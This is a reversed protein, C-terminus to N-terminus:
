SLATIVYVPRPRPRDRLIVRIIAALVVALALVVVAAVLMLLPVSVPRGLIVGNLKTYASAIVSLVVLVPISM